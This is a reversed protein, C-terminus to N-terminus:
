FFANFADETVWRGNIKYVSVTYSRYEEPEDLEKGDVYVVVELEYGDSIKASKMTKMVKETISVYKKADSKSLGMMDAIDEVDTDAIEELAEEASDRIEEQLDKLDDKEIKEKDEIEYYFKYNKGYEDKLDEVKDKYEDELEDEDEIMLNYADKLESDFLGNSVKLSASKYAKYTQANLQEMEIDLPTTYKNAGGGFVFFILVVAVIAVVAVAGLAIFLKKKSKKPAEMPMEPAPASYESGAEPNQYYENAM